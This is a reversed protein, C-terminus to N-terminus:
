QFTRETARQAIFSEDSSNNQTYVIHREKHHGHAKKNPCGEKCAFRWIEQIISKADVQDFEHASVYRQM